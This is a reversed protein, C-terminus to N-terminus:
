GALKEPLRAALGGISGAGLTLLIDNDQLLEKLLAPVEELNEAFVAPNRDNFGDFRQSRIARFLSAGDAGAIPAEGAPYVDLLLLADQGALVNVFDAFLDRTRSYRHPQFAVVLRRGPWGDRIGAITAAIERPHHGYDDIMLVRGKVTKIEGAVQFRRGIGQFNELARRMAAEDVGLQRAVSIAALANRV